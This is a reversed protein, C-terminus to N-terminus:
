FEDKSATAAMTKNLLELLRDVEAAFPEIKAAIVKMRGKRQRYSDYLRQLTWDDTWHGAGTLSNADLYYQCVGFSYLQVRYKGDKVTIDFKFPVRNPVHGWNTQKFSIYGRGMLKGQEKDQLEILQEQKDTSTLNLLWSKARTFLVDATISSDVQYIKEFFIAGDKEPLM